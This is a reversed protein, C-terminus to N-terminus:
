PLLLQHKCLNSANIPLSSLFSWLTLCLRAMLLAPPLKTFSGLLIENCNTGFSIKNKFLELCKLHLVSIVHLRGSLSLFVLGHNKMKIGSANSPYNGRQRFWNGGNLIHARYEDIREPKEGTQRTIEKKLILHREEGSLAFHSVSSEVLPVNAKKRVL